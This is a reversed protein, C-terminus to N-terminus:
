WLKINKRYFDNDQLYFKQITTMKYFNHMIFLLKTM